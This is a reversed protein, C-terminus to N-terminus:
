FDMYGLFIICLVNLRFSFVLLLVLFMCEISVYLEKGTRSIVRFLDVDPRFGDFRCCFRILKSGFFISLYCM